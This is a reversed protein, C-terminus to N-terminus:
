PGAGLVDVPEIGLADCLSLFTSLTLGRHGMEINTIAPRSTRVLEAVQQQTMGARLRAARLRAGVALNLAAEDLGM